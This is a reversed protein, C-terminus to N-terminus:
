KILKTPTLDWILITGDDSASILTQGDASFFIHSVRLSHGRLTKKKAGTATEWLYIEGLKMGSALTKGDPSFAFSSVVGTYIRFNEFWSPDTFDKSNGTEIDWLLITKERMRSGSGSALTRSDPSFALSDIKDTHGVLTRIHEGTEVDRLVISKSQENFRGSVIALVRGDPSFRAVHVDTDGVNTIKYDGSVTNWVFLDPDFRGIGALMKKDFYLEAPIRFRDEYTLKLTRQIDGTDVDHLHIVNKRKSASGWSAFTQSDRSFAIGSLHRRPGKIKIPKGTIVDWFHITEQFISHSALRKGNPSLVTYLASIKNGIFNKEHQGTNADWIRITSSGVALGMLTQADASLSVKPFYGGYGTVSKREKGTIVDWFRLTDDWSATVLTQNDPSFAVTKVAINDGKLKKKAKGTNVDWIRIDGDDYSAIYNGDSSFVIFPIPFLNDTKITKKQTGSNVDWLNISWIRTQRQGKFSTSESAIALTRLDSSYSVLEHRRTTEAKFTKVEKRTAIDWFSFSDGSSFSAVIKGDASFANNYGGLSMYMKPISNEDTKGNEIPSLTNKRQGTAIDWLDFMSLYIVALTRGDPMLFANEVGTYYEWKTFTKQHAGTSIDWIQAEGNETGVALTNGDVSFSISNIVGTHAALLHQPEATRADLIWVGIDSVVALLNGDPSYKLSSITGSGIRAKAGEPLHWQKYDLRINREEELTKENELHNLYYTGGIVILIVGILVGITKRISYLLKLM